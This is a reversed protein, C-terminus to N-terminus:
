ADGELGSAIPLAYYVALASAIALTAYASVAALATAALYPVLGFFSRTAIRRRRELSLEPHLLHAKRFLIHGNLTAFAVAMWLFLGGYIAAALSQGHGEKLYAALLSTGFPIVGISMLLLLNLMLITHDAERLRGIMV